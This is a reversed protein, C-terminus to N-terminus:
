LGGSYKQVPGSIRGEKKTAINNLARRVAAATMETWLKSNQANTIFEGSLSFCVADAGGVSNDIFTKIFEGALPLLDSSLYDRGELRISGDKQVRRIQM